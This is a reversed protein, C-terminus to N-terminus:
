RRMLPAPGDWAARGRRRAPPTRRRSAVLRPSTAYCPHGPRAVAVREPYIGEGIELDNVAAVRLARGAAGCGPVECVFRDGDRTGPELDAARRGAHPRKVVHAAEVLRMRPSDRALPRWQRPDGRGVHDVLRVQRGIRGPNRYVTSLM